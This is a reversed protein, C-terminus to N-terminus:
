AQAFRTADQAAYIAVTRETEANRRLADVVDALRSAPLACTMESNAMGTRVRSLMCGVSIAPEGSEKAIAVIHCQPKGEFRVGGLADDILMAQKASLRLFVVDPELPMDALPGYVVAGPREKVAAVKPFDAESVWGSGILAAVDANGAAEELSKFGHTYSGVSCNAHDAASTAFVSDVAKMWFVCGASVAGTRGDSTPAPPRAAYRDVGPVQAESRFAIGLPPVSLKLLSSLEGALRAHDNAM